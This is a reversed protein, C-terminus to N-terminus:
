YFYYPIISTHLSRFRNHVNFGTQFSWYMRGMSIPRLLILFKFFIGMCSNLKHKASQFTASFHSPPPTM